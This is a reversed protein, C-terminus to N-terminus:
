TCPAVDAEGPPAGGLVVRETLHALGGLAAPEGASGVGIWAQLAVLPALHNEELIATVGNPLEFSLRTKRGDVAAPLATAALAPAGAGQPGACASVLSSMGLAARVFSVVRM